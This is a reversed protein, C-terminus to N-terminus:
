PARSPRGRKNAINIAGEPSMTLSFGVPPVAEGWGGGSDM